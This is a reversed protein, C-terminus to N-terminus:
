GLDIRRLLRELGEFERQGLEHIRCSAMRGDQVTAVDFDPPLLGLSKLEAVLQDRQAEGGPHYAPKLTFYIRGDLYVTVLVQGSVNEILFQPIRGYSERLSKREGAVAMLRAICERLSLDRTAALAQELRQRTWPPLRLGAKRTVVEQTQGIVRPVLVIDDQSDGYCRLELGLVEANQMERNLYEISTRVEPRLEDAVIILRLRGHKLSDEVSNWFNGEDFIEGLQESAHAAFESGYRGWYRDALNRAGGGAFLERGHAAYEIMQGLVDRRSEPNQNLKCEVLTLVGRHDALLHDLSWQGIPAERALLVFRPPDDSGPEIQSGPIVQPHEEILKQLADELQAGSIGARMPRHSVSKLAQGKLTFVEDM